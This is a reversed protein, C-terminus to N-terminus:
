LITLDFVGEFQSLLMQRSELLDVNLSLSKVEFGNLTQHSKGLSVRQSKRPQNLKWGILASLRRNSRWQPAEVNRGKYLSESVSGLEVVDQVSQFCVQPAAADRRHFQGPEPRLLSCFNFESSSYM